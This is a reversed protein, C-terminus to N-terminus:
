RDLTAYTDTPINSNRAITQDQDTAWIELQPKLRVLDTLSMVTKKETGFPIGDKYLTIAARGEPLTDTAYITVNRHINELKQMWSALRKAKETYVDINDPAGYVGIFISDSIRSERTIARIMDKTHGKELWQVGDSRNVFHGKTVETQTSSPQTNTSRFDEALASGAPALTLAAATGLAAAKKGFEHKYSKVKDLLSM